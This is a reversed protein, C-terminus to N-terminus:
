LSRPDSVVNSCMFFRSEYGLLYINGSREKDYKEGNQKMVLKVVGCCMGRAAQSM